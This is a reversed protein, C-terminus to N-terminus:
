KTLNVSLSLQLVNSIFKVSFKLHLITQCEASEEVCLGDFVDSEGNERCYVYMASNHLKLSFIESAYTGLRQYKYWIELM